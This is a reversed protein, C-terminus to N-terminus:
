ENQNDEEAELPIVIALEKPENKNLGWYKLELDYLSKVDASISEPKYQL